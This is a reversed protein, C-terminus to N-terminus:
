GLRLLEFSLRGNEAQATGMSPWAARRRETPSGPNFIQFGDPAVEHLPLHSHGFVVADADPFRRRLRNLRGNAPGADHVVAIRLGGVDVEITEPLLAQLVPGDVNGKVAIVASYTQLGELTELRTLDGAHIILDSARLREVCIAPLRRNGKPM